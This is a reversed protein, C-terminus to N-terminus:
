CRSSFIISKSTAPGYLSAVTSFKNAHRNDVTAHNFKLKSRDINLWAVHTGVGFASDGVAALLALLFIYGVRPSTKAPSCFLLVIERCPSRRLFFLPLFTNCAHKGTYGTLFITFTFPLIKM